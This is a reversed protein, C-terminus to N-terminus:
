SLPIKVDEKKPKTSGVFLLRADHWRAMEHWWLVIQTENSMISLKENSM